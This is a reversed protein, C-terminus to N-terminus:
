KEDPKIIKDWLAPILFILLLVASMVPAGLYMSIEGKAITTIIGMPIGFLM